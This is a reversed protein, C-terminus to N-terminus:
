YDIDGLIQGTDSFVAEGSMMDVHSFTSTGRAFLWGSADAFRGTGGTLEIYLTSMYETDTANSCVVSRDDDINGFIMDGNAATITIGDTDNDSVFACNGSGHGESPDEEHRGYDQEGEITYTSNGIHTGRIEGAATFPVVDAGPMPVARSEGSTVAEFPRNEQPAAQASMLGVAGVLIMAALAAVAKKTVM